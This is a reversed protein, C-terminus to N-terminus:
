YAVGDVKKSFPDLLGVIDEDNMNDITVATAGTDVYEPLEEGAIAALASAVGNYGMGYPDQLILAYLVGNALAEIEEPDSDFAVAALKGQLGEEIIARAVGDGTHNNDAFFGVLDPNAAIQDKAIDMAVVIDNDTYRIELVELDPALEKLGDIFGGDRQDLVVIGAMASLLGVKGKPEIGAAELAEVFKEAALKGGAYNDTALFTNVKDTNVKNDITVIKTGDDYAREFIPIPADSSTSAMVIAPPETALVDELIAIQKDIDAESKPGYLTVSVEDPHEVAYNKAGVWVYQWFDSDTAKIIVPIEIPGAAPEDTTPEDVAPEDATPKDAAPEDQAPKDAPACGVLMVVTMLVALVVVLSRKM